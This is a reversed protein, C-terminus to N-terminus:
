HISTQICPIGDTVQMFLEEVEKWQGQNQHLQWTGIGTLPDPHEHGVGEEEDGDSAGGARGGGEM